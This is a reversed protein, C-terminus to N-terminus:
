GRVGPVGLVRRVTRLRLNAERVLHNKVDCILLCHDGSTKDIFHCVGQPFNFLAEEFSGDKYGAEPGGISDIFHNISANLLILRNNGSDAIVLLEDVREYPLPTGGM